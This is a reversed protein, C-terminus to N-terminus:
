GYALRDAPASPSSESQHAAPAPGSSDRAPRDRGGDDLPGTRAHAVEPLRQQVAALAHCRLAASRAVPLALLLAGLLGWCAGCRAGVSLLSPEGHSRGCSLSLHPRIGRGCDRSAKERCRENSSRCCLEELVGSAAVRSLPGISGSDPLEAPYRRDTAPLIAINHKPTPAARRQRGLLGVHMVQM